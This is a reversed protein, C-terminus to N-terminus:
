KSSLRESSAPLSIAKRVRQPCTCVSRLGLGGTWSHLTCCCVLPALSRVRTVGGREKCGAVIGAPFVTERPVHHEASLMLSLSLGTVQVTDFSALDRTNDSYEKSRDEQQVQEWVHWVYRLPLHEDPVAEQALFRCVLVLWRGKRWLRPCQTNRGPPFSRCAITFLHVAFNADWAFQLCINPAWSSAGESDSVPSFCHLTITFFLGAGGGRLRTPSTSGFFLIGM